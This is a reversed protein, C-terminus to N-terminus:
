AAIISRHGDFSRQHDAAWRRDPCWRGEFSAKIISARRDTQLLYLPAPQWAATPVELPGAHISGKKLANIANQSELGGRSLGVQQLILSAMAEVPVM